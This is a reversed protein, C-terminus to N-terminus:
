GAKKGRREVYERLARNISTQYGKGQKARRKFWAVLDADLRLTLQQKIPRFYPNQIANRWFKDTLEPIESVDVDGGPKAGLAQIEAKQAKTLAPPNRPDLTYRVTKKSM